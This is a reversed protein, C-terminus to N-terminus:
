KSTKGLKYYRALDDGTFTKLLEVLDLKEPETLNLKRMRPDLWTNAAGGRDYYDIVDRLTAESGDHMYPATLAVDRLQPTRFAGLDAKQKTVSFHGLEPVTANGSTLVAADQLAKSAVPEFEAHGAAVGINHFQGDTFLPTASSYAHCLVCGAKGNFLAWGRKASDSIAAQDGAVFHDIPARLSVITREFSAVSKQIREMTIAEDGFAAKFLPAYQPISKLKAPAEAPDSFGMEPPGTLAGKVQDELQALRGDWFIPKSYAV